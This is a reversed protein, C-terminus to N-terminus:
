KCFVYGGKHGPVNNGKFNHRKMTGAFGKGISVGRLDIYQGEVFHDIMFQLQINGVLYIKIKAEPLWSYHEGLSNFM